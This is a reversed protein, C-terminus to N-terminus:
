RQRIAMSNRWFVDNGGSNTVVSGNFNVNTSTFSGAFYSNGGVDVAVGNASERGNGGAQAAWLVNGAGDYKTVFFDHNTASANTLSIGAFSANTSYFNGTM